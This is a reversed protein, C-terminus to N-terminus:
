RGGFLGHMSDHIAIAGIVLVVVLTGGVVALITLGVDGQRVYVKSVDTLPISAAKGGSLGRIVGANITVRQSDDFEYKTGDITVVIEIEGNYLEDAKKGEPNVLTVSTCGAFATTFICIWATFKMGINMAIRM